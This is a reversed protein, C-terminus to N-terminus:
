EEGEMKAILAEIEDDSLEELESLDDPGWGDDDGDEVLDM